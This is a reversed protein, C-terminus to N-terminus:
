PKSRVLLGLIVLALSVLWFNNVIVQESIGILEYHHHIPAMRFIRRGQGYINKTVKFFWVQLIVSLSEALFIGGM